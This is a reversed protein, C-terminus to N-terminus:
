KPFENILFQIAEYNGEGGLKKKIKNERIRNDLEKNDLMMQKYAAKKARRFERAVLKYFRQEELIYGASRRLKQKQFEKLGQQFEGNPDLMIKELRSRLEGMSMYRSLESREKDTLRIGKYTTVVDPMNFDMEYLLEKIPDGAISTVAVPSLM